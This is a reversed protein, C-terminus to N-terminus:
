VSCAIQERLRIQIMPTVLVNTGFGSSIEEPKRKEFGPQMGYLEAYGKMMKSMVMAQRIRKCRLCCDEANSTVNGQEVVRYMILMPRWDHLFYSFFFSLCSRHWLEGGWPGRKVSFRFCNDDEPWVFSNQLRFSHGAEPSFTFVLLNRCFGVNFLNRFQVITM